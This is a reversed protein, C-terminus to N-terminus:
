FNEQSSKIFKAYEVLPLYKQNVVEFIANSLKSNVEGYKMGIKNQIEMEAQTPEKFSKTYLGNSSNQMEKNLANLNDLSAVIENIQEDSIVLGCTKAENIKTQILPNANANPENTSMAYYGNQANYKAYAQGLCEFEKKDSKFKEFNANFQTIYEKINKDNTKSGNEEFFRKAVASNKELKELSSQIKSSTEPNQFQYYNGQNIPMLETELITLRDIRDM